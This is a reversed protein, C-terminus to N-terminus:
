KLPTHEDYLDLLWQRLKAPDAGENVAAPVFTSIAARLGTLADKLLPSVPEPM